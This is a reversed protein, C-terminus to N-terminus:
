RTVLGGIDAARRAPRDDLHRTLADRPALVAFTWAIGLVVAVVVIALGTVRLQTTHLLHRM